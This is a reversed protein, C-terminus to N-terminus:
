IKKVYLFVFKGNVSISNRFRQYDRAVRRLSQGPFRHQTFTHYFIIVTESKGAAFLRTKVSFSQHARKVNKRKIFVRNSSSFLSYIIVIYYLVQENKDNQRSYPVTNNNM